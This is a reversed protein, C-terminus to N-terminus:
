PWSVFDVRRMLDAITLDAGFHGRVFATSLNVAAGNESRGEHLPPNLM